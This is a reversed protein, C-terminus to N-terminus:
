ERHVLLSERTVFRREPVEGPAQGNRRRQTSQDLYTFQGLLIETQWLRRNDSDYFAAAIFLAWSGTEPDEDFHQGIILRVAPYPLPGYYNPQTSPSPRRDSPTPRNGSQSMFTGRASWYPSTTESSAPGNQHRKGTISQKKTKRASQSNLLIPPGTAQSQLCSDDWVTILSRSLWPAQHFRSINVQFHLGLTPEM